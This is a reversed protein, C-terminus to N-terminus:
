FPWFSSLGEGFAKGINAINRLSALEEEAEYLMHQHQILAAGLTNLTFKTEALEKKNLSLEGELKSIDQRAESLEQEKNSLETETEKLEEKTAELEETAKSLESEKESLEDEHTQKTIELLLEMQAIEQEKELQQKMDSLEENNSPTYITVTGPSSTSKSDVEDESLTMTLAPQISPASSPATTELVIKKSRLTTPKSQKHAAKSVRRVRIKRFM